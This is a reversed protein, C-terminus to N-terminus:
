RPEEALVPPSTPFLLRRLLGPAFLSLPNVGLQPDALPGRLTWNAALLGQGDGGTLLTGLLPIAGIVRNIGYLPVVTGEVEIRDATTDVSGQATLGLQGGWMRANGIRLIPAEHVFDATLRDISIGDNGLLDALGGLSLANFLRVMTPM